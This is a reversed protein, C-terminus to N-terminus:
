KGYYCVHLIKNNKPRFGLEWFHAHSNITKHDDLSLIFLQLRKIAEFYMLISGLSTM